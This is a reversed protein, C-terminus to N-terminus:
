GECTREGREAFERVSGREGIRGAEGPFDISARGMDGSLGVAGTVEPPAAPISVFMTSAAFPFAARGARFGTASLVAPTPLPFLGAAAGGTTAGLIPLPLALVILSLLSELVLVM